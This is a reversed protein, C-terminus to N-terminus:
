QFNCVKSSVENSIELSMKQNSKLREERNDTLQSSKLSSSPKAMPGGIETFWKKTFKESNGKSNARKDTFRAIKGYIM